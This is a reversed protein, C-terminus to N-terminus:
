VRDPNAWEKSTKREERKLNSKYGDAAGWVLNSSSKNMKSEYLSLFNLHTGDNLLQYELKFPFLKAIFEMKKAM